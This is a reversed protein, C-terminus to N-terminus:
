GGSAAVGQLRGGGEAEEKCPRQSRLLGRRQGGRHKLPQVHGEM